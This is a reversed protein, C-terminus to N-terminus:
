KNMKKSHMMRITELKQCNHFFNSHIKKYTDKKQVCANMEGLPHFQQIM